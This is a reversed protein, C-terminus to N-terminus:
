AAGQKYSFGCGQPRWVCGGDFLRHALLCHDAQPPNVCRAILLEGTGALFNQINAIETNLKGMEQKAWEDEPYDRLDAARDQLESQKQAIAAQLHTVNM